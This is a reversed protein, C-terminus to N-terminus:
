NWLPSFLGSGRHYCGFRQDMGSRGSGWITENHVVEGGECIDEDISPEMAPLDTRSALRSTLASVVGCKLCPPSGIMIQYSILADISM